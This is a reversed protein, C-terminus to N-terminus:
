GRAQARAQEALLAGVIRRSGDAEEPKGTWTILAKWLTWARGRAWTGADLPLADRFAQRAEGELFTWAIALDCALDGVACCGFDIVACLRGDKVLLNGAAFDGHIWVPAHDWATALAADWLALCAAADVKGGLKAIAERTEADYTSLPGGRFFNHRGADPAGSTDARHLASLFGALGRAFAVQDDIEGHAATEGEIWGYVSWEWPYSADPSGQALPTPIALPLQPALKPLWAQEKAVQKRYWPAAPMRILKDDGLHFTRNDWGSHAVRRVPLGAWAPFQRAVLAAAIEPAVEIRESTL